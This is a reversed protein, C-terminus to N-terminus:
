STRPTFKSTESEVVDYFKGRIRDEDVLAIVMRLGDAAANCVTLM